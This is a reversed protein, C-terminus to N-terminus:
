DLSEEQGEIPLRSTISMEEGINFLIGFRLRPCKAQFLKKINEFIIHTDM